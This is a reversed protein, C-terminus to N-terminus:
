ECTFYQSIAFLSSYARVITKVTPRSNIILFHLCLVEWNGSFNPSPVATVLRCYVLSPSTNPQAFQHHLFSAVGLGRMAGSNKSATEILRLVEKMKTREARLRSYPPLASPFPCDSSWPSSNLNLHRGPFVASRLSFGYSEVALVTSRLLM